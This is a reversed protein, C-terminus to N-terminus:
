RRLFWFMEGGAEFGVGAASEMCPASGNLVPCRTAEVTCEFGPVGASDIADGDKLRANSYYVFTHQSLTFITSDNGMFNLDFVDREAGGYRLGGLVRQKGDLGKTDM